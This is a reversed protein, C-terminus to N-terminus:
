YQDKLTVHNLRQELFAALEVADAREKLNYVQQLYDLHGLDESCLPAAKGTQMCVVLPKGFFQETHVIAFDYRTHESIYGVFHLAANESVDYLQEFM